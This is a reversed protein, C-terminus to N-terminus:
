AAVIGPGAFPPFGKVAAAAPMPNVLALFM